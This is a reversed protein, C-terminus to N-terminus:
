HRVTLYTRPLIRQWRGAALRREIVHPAVGHRIAEERSIIRPLATPDLIPCLDDLVM